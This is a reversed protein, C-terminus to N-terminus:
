IWYLKIAYIYTEICTIVDSWKEKLLTCCENTKNVMNKGYDTTTKKYEIEIFKFIVQM